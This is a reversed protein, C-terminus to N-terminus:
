KFLNIIFYMQLYTSTFGVLAGALVQTLTHV